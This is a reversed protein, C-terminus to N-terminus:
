RAFISPVHFGSADTGQVIGKSFYVVKEEYHLGTFLEVVPLRFNSNAYVWVEDVAKHQRPSAYVVFSTAERHRPKGNISSVQRSPMGVAVCPAAPPVCSCGVFAASCLISSALKVISRTNM